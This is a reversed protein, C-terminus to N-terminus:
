EILHLMLIFDTLWSKLTNKRQGLFLKIPFVVYFNLNENYETISCSDIYKKTPQAINCVDFYLIYKFKSYNQVFFEIADVLHILIFIM